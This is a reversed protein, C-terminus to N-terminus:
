DTEAYLTGYNMTYKICKCYLRKYLHYTIPSPTLSPRNGIM